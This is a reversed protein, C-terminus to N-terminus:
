AASPGEVQVRHAHDLPVILIAVMRLPSRVVLFTAASGYLSWVQRAVWAIQATSANTESLKGGSEACIRVVLRDRSVRASVALERRRNDDASVADAFCTILKQMVLAPMRAYRAESDVRVKTTLRSRAKRSLSDLLRLALAVEQAVTVKVACFYADWEDSANFPMSLRARPRM